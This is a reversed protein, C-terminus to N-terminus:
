SLKRSLCELILKLKLEIESPIDGEKYMKFIVDAVEYEAVDAKYPRLIAKVDDAPIICLVIDDYSFYERFYMEYFELAKTYREYLKEFEIKGWKDLLDNFDKYVKIWDEARVSLKDLIQRLINRAQEPDKFPKHDTLIIYKQELHSGYKRIPAEYLTLFQKFKGQLDVLEVQQSSRIAGVAFLAFMLQYEEYGECFVIVDSFLAKQLFELHTFKPEGKIRTVKSYHDKYAFRFINGRSLIEPDVFFPSHTIIIVQNKSREQSGKILTKVKAITSPNLWSEPMDLIIVKNKFALLTTILHLLRVEGLSATDLSYVIGDREFNLEVKDEISSIYFKANSLKEYENEVEQYTNYCEKCIDPPCNKLAYMFYALGKGKGFDNLVTVDRVNPFEECVKKVRDKIEGLKNLQELNFQESISIISESFMHIVLGYLSHYSGKYEIKAEPPMAVAIKESQLKEVFVQFLKDDNKLECENILHSIKDLLNGATSLKPLDEITAVRIHSDDTCVYIEKDNHSVKHMCVYLMKPKNKLILFYRYEQIFLKQLFKIILGDNVKCEELFKNFWKNILDKEFSNDLEVTLIVFTEGRALNCFRDLSDKLDHRINEVLRRLNSKGSANPGVIITEDSNFEIDPDKFTLIGYESFVKINKLKM